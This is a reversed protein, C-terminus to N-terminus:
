VSASYSLLKVSICMLVISVSFNDIKPLVLTYIGLMVVLLALTSLLLMLVYIIGLRNSCIFLCYLM